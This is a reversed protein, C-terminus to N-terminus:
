RGICAMRRILPVSEAFSHHVTSIVDGEGNRTTFQIEAAGPVRETTVVHGTPLKFTQV